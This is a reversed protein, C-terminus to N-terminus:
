KILGLVARAITMDANTNGLPAINQELQNMLAKNQVLSFAENVLRGQAEGDKILLAAQKHVLSLANQTQHDEAAFPYPV